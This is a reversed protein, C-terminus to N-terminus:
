GNETTRWPKREVMTMIRRKLSVIIAYLKQQLTTLKEKSKKKANQVNQWKSYDIGKVLSNASDKIVIEQLTIGLDKLNTTGENFIKILDENPLETSIILQITRPKM